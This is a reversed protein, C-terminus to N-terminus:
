KNLFDLLVLLQSHSFNASKVVKINMGLKELGSYIAKDEITDILMKVDVPKASGRRPTRSM